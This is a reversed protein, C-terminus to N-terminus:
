TADNEGEPKRQSASWSAQITDCFTQLETEIPNGLGALRVLNEAQRRVEASQEATLTREDYGWKNNEMFGAFRGCHGLTIPSDFNVERWYWGIYPIVKGTMELGKIAVPEGMDLGDALKEIGENIETSTV